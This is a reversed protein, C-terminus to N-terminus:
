LKITKYSRRDGKKRTNHNINNSFDIIEIERDPFQKDVEEAIESAEKSLKENFESIEQDSLYKNGIRDAALFLEELSLDALPNQDLLEQLKQYLNM